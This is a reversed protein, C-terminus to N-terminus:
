PSESGDPVAIGTAQVPVEFVAGHCADSSASQMTLAKPLTFVGITNRPVDWQVEYRDQNLGVLPDLCGENVHEDDAVVLGGARAVTTIRVPFDHQNTLVVSLDGPVGPALPVKSDSRARQALEVTIGPNVPAASGQTVRWYMWVVGANVIIAATVAIAIIWRSRRALPARARTVMTPKWGILLDRQGYQQAAIATPRRSVNRM